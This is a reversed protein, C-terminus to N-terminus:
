YDKGLNYFPHLSINIIHPTDSVKNKPMIHTVPARIGVLFFGTRPFSSFIVLLSSSCSLLPIIVALPEPLLREPPPLIVKPYSTWM